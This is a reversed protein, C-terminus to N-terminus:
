GSVTFSTSALVSTKRGSSTFVEAKCSASGSTWVSTPGLQFDQGWPYSPYFGKTAAYVLTSGTYCNVRVSPYLSPSTSIAFTVRDGIVPGGTHTYLPVLTITGGGTTGGGGGGGIAPAAAVLSASALATVLAIRTRSTM